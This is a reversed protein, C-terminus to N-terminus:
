CHRFGRFGPEVGHGPTADRSNVSGPVDGKVRNEIRLTESLIVKIAPVFTLLLDCTERSVLM